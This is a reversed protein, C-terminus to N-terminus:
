RMIQKVLIRLIIAMFFTIDTRNTQRKAVEAKAATGALVGAVPAELSAGLATDACTFFFCETFLVWWLFAALSAPEAAGAALYAFM